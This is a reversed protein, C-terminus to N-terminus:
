GQEKNRVLKEVANLHDYSMDDLRSKIWGIVAARRMEKYIEQLRDFSVKAIRAQSWAPRDILEGTDKSYTQLSGDISRITIDQETVHDVKVIDSENWNDFVVVVDEETVEHLDNM